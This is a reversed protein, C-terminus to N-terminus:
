DKDEDKKVPLQKWRSRFNIWSDAVAVGIVILKVPDLLVWLLYFVTLWGKGLKRYAARAHVVSLGAISLPVSILVAWPRYELGYTSVLLMLVVLATSAQPSYRLSHFEQSFGGPNYLAAQWWRALLLCLVCSVANMLGLMGAITAIGPAQLEVPEGDQSLQAGLDAFVEAFFTALQELYNVGLWLMGLGTIAGVLSAGFLTLPWSATWRLMMALATTGVIMGLPGVDGFVALLFGAPLVAWALIYAGETPGRRLTVLALVAASLWSFLLTSAGLVSVWLAQNRGRM